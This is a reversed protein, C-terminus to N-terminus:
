REPNVERPRTTRSLGHLLFLGTLHSGFFLEDIELPLQVVNPLVPFDVVASTITVAVRVEPFQEVAYPRRQPFVVEGHYPCQRLHVTPKDDDTPHHPLISCSDNKSMEEMVAGNNRKQKELKRTIIDREAHMASTLVSQQQIREDLNTLKIASEDGCEQLDIAENFYHHYDAILFVLRHIDERFETIVNFAIEQESVGVKKTSTIDRKVVEHNRVRAETQVREQHHQVVLEKEDRDRREIAVQTM